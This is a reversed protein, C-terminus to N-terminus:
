IISVVKPVEIKYLRESVKELNFNNNLLTELNCYFKTIYYEDSPSNFWDLHFKRLVVFADDENLQKELLNIENENLNITKLYYKQKLLGRRKSM